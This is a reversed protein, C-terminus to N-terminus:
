RRLPSRGDFDDIPIDAGADHEVTLVHSSTAAAHKCAHRGSGFRGIEPQEIELTRAADIIAQSRADSNRSCVHDDAHRPRM